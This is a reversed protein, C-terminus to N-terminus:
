KGRGAPSSGTNRVMGNGPADNPLTRNAAAGNFTGTHVVAIKTATICRRITVLRDQNEECLDHSAHALSQAKEWDGLRMHITAMQLLASARNRCFEGYGACRGFDELAATWEHRQMHLMGTAHFRDAWRPKAEEPPLDLRNLSGEIRAILEDVAAWGGAPHSEHWTLMRLESLLVDVYAPTREQPTGEVTRRLATTERHLVRSLKSPKGGAADALITCAALVTEAGPVAHDRRHDLRGAVTGVYLYSRGIGARLGTNVIAECAPMEQTTLRDVM